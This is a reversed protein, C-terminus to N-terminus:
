IGVKKNQRPSPTNFASLDCSSSPCRFLTDCRQTKYAWILFHTRYVKLKNFSGPLGFKKHEDADTYRKKFFCFDSTLATPPHFPLLQRLRSWEPATPIHQDQTEDRCRKWRQPQIICLETSMFQCWWVLTVALLHMPAKPPMCCIWTCIYTNYSNADMVVTAGHRGHLWASKAHLWMARQYRYLSWLFSASLSRLFCWSTQPPRWMVQVAQGCLTCCLTPHQLGSPIPWIFNVDSM